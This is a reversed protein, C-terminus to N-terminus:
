AWWHRLGSARAAPQALAAELAGPEAELLTFQERARTIQRRVADLASLDRAAALEARFAALLAALDPRSM